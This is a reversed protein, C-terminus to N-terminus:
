LLSLIVTFAVLVIIGLAVFNFAFFCFFAVVILLLEAESLNGSTRSRISAIHSRLISAIATRLVSSSAEIATSSSRQCASLTSASSVKLSVAGSDILSSLASSLRENNSNRSIRASEAILATM